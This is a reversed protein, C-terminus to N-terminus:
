GFPRYVFVYRGLGIFWTLIWLGLYGFVGVRLRIRWVGMNEHLEDLDIDQEPRHYLDHARKANFIRVIGTLGFVLFAYAQFGLFAHVAVLSDFQTLLRPLMWVVVPGTTLVLGVGIVSLHHVLVGWTVTEVRLIIWAGYVYFPLSLSVVGVVLAAIVAESLVTM